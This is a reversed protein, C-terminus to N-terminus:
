EYKSKNNTPKKQTYLWNSNWICIRLQVQYWKPNLSRGQAYLTNIKENTFEFNQKLIRYKVIFSISFWANIYHWITGTISFLLWMFSFGLVALATWLVVQLKQKNTSNTEYTAEWNMGAAFLNIAFYTIILYKM